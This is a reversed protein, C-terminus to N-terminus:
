DELLSELQDEQDDTVEYFLPEEQSNAIATAIAAGVLAGAVGLGVRILLEKNEEAKIM